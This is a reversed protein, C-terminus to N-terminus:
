LFFYYYNAKVGRSKREFKGQGEGGGGGAKGEGGVYLHLGCSAVANFSFFVVFIYKNFDGM